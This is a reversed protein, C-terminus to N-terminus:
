HRGFRAPRIYFRGKGQEDASFNVACAPISGANEPIIEGRETKQTVARHVKANANGEARGRGSERRPAPLGMKLGKRAPQVPPSFTHQSILANSRVQHIAIKFPMGAFYYAAVHAVATRVTM